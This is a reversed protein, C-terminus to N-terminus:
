SLYLVMRKAMSDITIPANEYQEANKALKDTASVPSSISKAEIVGSDSTLSLERRMRKESIEGMLISFMVEDDEKEVAFVAASSSVSSSIM